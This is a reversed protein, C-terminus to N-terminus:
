LYFTARVDTMRPRCTLSPRNAPRNQPRGLFQFGRFGRFGRLGCFRRFGYAYFDFDVFDM